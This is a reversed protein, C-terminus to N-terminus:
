VLTSLYESNFTDGYQLLSLKDMYKEPASVLKLIDKYSLSIVQVIEEGKKVPVLKTRATRHKHKFDTSTFGFKGNDTFLLLHSHEFDIEGMIKEAHPSVGNTTIRTTRKSDVWESYDVVSAFGDSFVYGVKKDRILEYCVVEFDDEVELYVPLYVGRDKESMMPLHELNVRLLRGQTDIFSIIDDSMCHIGELDETGRNKRVKKIFKDEIVAIVPVAEAKVVVQNDADEFVYDETTVETKRPFSYKKDLEKLQNVIVRKVDALDNEVGAKRAKLNNLHTLRNGLGSFQRLKMDLIWDFVYRETTPFWEILLDRAKVEGQKALVETFQSRKEDDQLLQVLVEYQPISTNLSNLEKELKTRLVGERFRLWEALLAKYGIVRPKNDIIVVVNTTITMQLETTRLLETLVSDVHKKTSCEVAVRLGNLRDSEDRVDSVGQIEEAKKIIASSNTYYPLEEIVITKGDIHWKGRLKLRGRGTEMIKQLEKDDRVYYGKTTFDPMLPKTIDGTEALEIVAHIVEHYNNAPINSAMGVAIGSMANVLINPFSVPLLEPEMHKNDYSPIFNVGDLEGFLESSLSGLMVNTYRSAAPPETSYIKGFNGKGNIFTTNMYESVDTMRVMTDYVSADGHPHYKLVAGAVSQAKLMDYVKEKRMTYLIRRQSPKFGDINAIARDVVVEKAYDVYGGVLFRLGEPIDKHEVVIQGAKSM